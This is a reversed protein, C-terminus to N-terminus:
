IKKIKNSSFININYLVKVLFVWRCGSTDIMESIDYAVGGAGFDLVGLMLPPKGYRNSETRGGTMGRALQGDASYM